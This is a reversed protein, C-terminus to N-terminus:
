GVYTFAPLAGKFQPYFVPEQIETELNLFEGKHYILLYFLELVNQIRM